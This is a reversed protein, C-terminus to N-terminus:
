KCLDAGPQTGYMRAACSGLVFRDVVCSLNAVSFCLSCDSWMHDTFEHFIEDVLLFLYSSYSPRPLGKSSRSRYTYLIDPTLICYLAADLCVFSLIFLTFTAGVPSSHGRAGGLSVGWVGFSCRGGASKVRPAPASAAPAAPASIGAPRPPRKIKGTLGTCVRHTAWSTSRGMPPMPASRSHVLTVRRAPASAAPASRVLVFWVSCVPLDNM